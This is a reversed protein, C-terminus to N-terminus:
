RLVRLGVAPFLQTTVATQVWVSALTEISRANRLPGGDVPDFGCDVILGRALAKASDNDGCYFLSPTEGGIVRTPAALTEAFTTNFAEVVHAGPLAAAISEAVSEQRDAVIGITSGSFDPRLASVCTIVTTGNLGRLRPLIDALAQPWVALMVIQAARAQDIPGISLGREHASASLADSPNDTCLSVDHGAQSWLRGLATGMKGAGIIAIKM